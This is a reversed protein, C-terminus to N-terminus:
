PPPNEFFPAVEQSVKALCLNHVRKGMAHLLQFGRGHHEPAKNLAKKSGKKRNCRCLPIPNKNDDLDRYIHAALVM